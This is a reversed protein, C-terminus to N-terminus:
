VNSNISLEIQNIEAQLNKRAQLELRQYFYDTYYIRERALFQKLIKKRGQYYDRDSLHFYEQRIAQSYQLYKDGTTGLIALDADLFILNDIEELLPQHNITSLIIQAVAKIIEADINLQKLVKTAYVASDIENYQAQPSYIYDHFWASFKLVNLSNSINKVQEISNLIERIHELNHYSRVPDCYSHILAVFIKNGLEIDASSEQLLDFWSAKLEQISYNHSNVRM